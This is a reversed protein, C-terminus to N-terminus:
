LHPGEENLREFQAEACTGTLNATASALMDKNNGVDAILHNRM